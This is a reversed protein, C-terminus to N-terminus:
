PRGGQRSFLIEMPAIPNTATVVAEVEVPLFDGPGELSFIHHGAEVQLTQGTKGCIQGDLLVRRSEGQPLRVIVFEM